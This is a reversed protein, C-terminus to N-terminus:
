VNEHNRYESRSIILEAGTNNSTDTDIILDNAYHRIIKAGGEIFRMNINLNEEDLAGGGGGINPPLIGACFSCVCSEEPGGAQTWFAIIVFSLFGNV